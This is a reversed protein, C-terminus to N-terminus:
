CGYSFLPLQREPWRALTHDRNLACTTQGVPTELAGTFGHAKGSIGSKRGEGGSREWKAPVMKTRQGLLSNLHVSASCLFM